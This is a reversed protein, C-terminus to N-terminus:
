SSGKILGLTVLASRIANVLVATSDTAGGLTTFLYAESATPTIAAATVNCFNIRATNAASIRVGGIGLGAQATPKNVVIAQDTAVGTVTFTQEGCTTATIVTPSLTVTIINAGGSTSAIAAQSSGSPQVVTTKGYFSIKDTVSQGFVTGDPNARSLQNQAYAIASIALVASLMGALFKKM